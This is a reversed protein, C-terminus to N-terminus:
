GSLPSTGLAQGHRQTVLDPQAPADALVQGGRQPELGLDLGDAGHQGPREARGAQPVQEDLELLAAELDHLQAPERVRWSLDSLAAFVLWLRRIAAASTGAARMASSSGVAEPLNSVFIVALAGIVLSSAALAGWGLAGTV